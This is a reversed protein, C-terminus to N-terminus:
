QSTPLGFDWKYWYICGYLFLFMVLYFLIDLKTSLRMGESKAALQQAAKENEIGLKKLLEKERPSLHSFDADAGVVKRVADMGDDQKAQKKGM